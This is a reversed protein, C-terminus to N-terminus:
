TPCIEFNYKGIMNLLVVMWRFRKALDVERVRQSQVSTEMADSLGMMKLGKMSGLMSSTMTIRKQTAGIYVKQRVRIRGAVPKSLGYSCLVIIFPVLSAWGLKKTLIYFGILVEVMMSWIEHVNVIADAITDVDVSMLTLPASDPINQVTLSHRYILSVMGGRLM